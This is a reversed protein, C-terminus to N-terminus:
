HNGVGLNNDVTGAGAVDIIPIDLILKFRRHSFFNILYYSIGEGNESLAAAYSTALSM